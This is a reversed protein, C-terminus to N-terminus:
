EEEELPIKKRIKKFCNIVPNTKSNKDEKKRFCKKIETRDSPLFLKMTEKCPIEGILPYMKQYKEIIKKAKNWRLSYDYIIQMEEETVPISDTIVHNLMDLEQYTAIISKVKITSNWRSEWLPMQYLIQPIMQKTWCNEIKDWVEEKKSMIDLLKFLEDESYYKMEEDTLLCDPRNAEKVIRHIEQARNQTIDEVMFDPNVFANSKELIIKTIEKIKKNLAQAKERRRKEYEKLIMLSEEETVSYPLGLVNLIENIFKEKKEKIQKRVNLGMQKECIDFLVDLIKDLIPKELM